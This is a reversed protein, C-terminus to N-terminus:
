TAIAALLLIASTALSAACLRCAIFTNRGATRLSIVTTVILLAICAATATTSSDDSVRSVAATLKGAFILTVGEFIWEMTIVRCNETGIDRIRERHKPDPVAARPGATGRDQKALCRTSAPSM